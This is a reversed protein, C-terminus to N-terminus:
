MIIIIIVVIMITIIVIMAGSDPWGLGFNVEINRDAHEGQKTVGGQGGDSYQLSHCPERTTMDARTSRAGHTEINLRPAPPAM